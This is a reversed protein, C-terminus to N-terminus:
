TAVGGVMGTTSITSDGDIIPPIEFPTSEEVVISSELTKLPPLV